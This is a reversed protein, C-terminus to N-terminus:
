LNMKKLRPKISSIELLRFNFFTSIGLHELGCL